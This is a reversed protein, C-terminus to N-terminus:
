ARNVECFHQANRRALSMITGQPNVGPSDPIMSADNVYVNDWGHLKGFSDAACRDRREGIPCSSFAHVTTLSCARGDLRDDLWRVADVQSRIPAVGCVAPFVETAGGELLLSSLRSVGRSLNWIDEDSLAYHVSTRGHELRAPRVRGRGTGRVGVYYCAMHDSDRMRDHTTTWNNSLIAALHSRSFFAGGLVIEPWFEKVQLLPMSADAAGIPEDFRAAVKLM